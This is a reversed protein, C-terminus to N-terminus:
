PTSKAQDVVLVTSRWKDDLSGANETCASGIDLLPKSLSFADGDNCVLWAIFTERDMDALQASAWPLFYGSVYSQPDNQLVETLRAIGSLLSEGSHKALADSQWTFVDPCLQAGKFRLMGEEDRCGSVLGFHQVFGSNGRNSEPGM